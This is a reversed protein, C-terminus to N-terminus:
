AFSNIPALLPLEIPRVTADAHVAAYWIAKALIPVNIKFRSEVANPIPNKM